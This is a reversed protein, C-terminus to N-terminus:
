PQGNRLLERFTLDGAHACGDKRSTIVYRTGAGGVERAYSVEATVETKGALADGMTLLFALGLCLTFSIIRTSNM